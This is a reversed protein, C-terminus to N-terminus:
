VEALQAARVIPLTLDGSEVGEPTIVWGFNEPGRDAYDDNPKAADLEIGLASLGFIASREDGWRNKIFSGLLPLSRTMVEEPRVGERLNLEDWCSLLVVLAPMAGRHELSRAHLLMQLLEVLRAQVSRRPKIPLESSSPRIQALPKSFIDEDQKALRPRIMLIWSQAEQVRELWAQKMRRSEIMAQIQEGGYDPWTLNFSAGEETYVNWISDHYVATPTHAALLGANLKARVAEFPSLDSAPINIKLACQETIIRSLLQAGYHSKGMDSEGFLALRVTMMGRDNATM